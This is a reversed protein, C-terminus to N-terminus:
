KYYDKELTPYVERKWKLYREKYAKSITPKEKHGILVWGEGTWVHRFINYANTPFIKNFPVLYINVSNKKYSEAEYKYWYNDKSLLYDNPKDVISKEGPNLWESISM